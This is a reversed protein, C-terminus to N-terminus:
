RRSRKTCRRDRRRRNRSARRSRDGVFVTTAKSSATRAQRLNESARSEPPQRKGLRLSPLKPLTADFIIAATSLGIPVNTWDEGTRQAVLAEIALTARTGADTLRLTYQPWWKAAYPVAYSLELSSLPAAGAAIRLDFARSPHGEGMRDAGSTQLDEVQAADRERSTRELELRLDIIREDIAAVTESIVQSLALATEVRAAPGEDRLAKGPEPTVLASQLRQAREKLAAEREHLRDIRRNLQEVRETTAGPGSDRSPVNIRANVGVLQRSDDPLM